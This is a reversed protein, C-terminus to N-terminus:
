FRKSAFWAVVGAGVVVLVDIAVVVAGIGTLIWGVTHQQDFWGDTLLLVLGAAIFLLFPM